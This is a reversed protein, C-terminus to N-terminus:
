EVYEDDEEEEEDGANTDWSEDDEGDDWNEEAAVDATAETQLPWVYM